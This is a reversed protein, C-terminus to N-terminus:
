LSEEGHMCPATTDDGGSDVAFEDDDRLIHFKENSEKLKSSLAFMAATRGTKRRRPAIRATEMRKMARGDLHVKRAAAVAMAFVIGFLVLLVIYIGYEQDEKSQKSYIAQTVTASPHASPPSTSPYATPYFSPISTLTSATDNVTFNGFTWNGYTINNTINSINQIM